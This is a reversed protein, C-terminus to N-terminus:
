IHTLHFQRILMNTQPSEYPFTPCEGLKMTSDGAPEVTCELRTGDGEAVRVDSLHQTFTPPVGSLAEEGGSRALAAAAALRRKDADLEGIKALADPHM